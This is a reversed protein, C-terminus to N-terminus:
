EIKYVTTTTMMMMMMMMLITMMLVIMMKMIMAMLIMMATIVNIHDDDCCDDDVNDHLDLANYYLWYCIAIASSDDNNVMCSVSYKGRHDLRSNRTSVTLGELQSVM